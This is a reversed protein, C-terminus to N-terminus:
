PKVKSITWDRLRDWRSRPEARLRAYLKCASAILPRRLVWAFIALVTAILVWKSDQAVEVGEEAAVLARGKAEDALRRPIPREALSRRVEGLRADFVARASNRIARDQAVQQELTSM